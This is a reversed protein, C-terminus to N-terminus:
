DKVESYKEYMKQVEEKTVSNLATIYCSNAKTFYEKAKVTDGKKEYLLGMYYNSDVLDERFELAKSFATESKEFESTKYYIQGLNDWAAGSEPEEELAKNTFEIAQSYDEKLFYMYGLTTLVNANVYEHKNKLHALTEIAKDIEGMIWYCSGMTVLINKDTMIKTNISEAKKLLPLAESAKGDQLLYIAYNLYVSPNKTNKEVATKLFKIATDTNGRAYNLNGLFGTIGGRFM